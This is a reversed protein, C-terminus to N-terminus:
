VLGLLNHGIKSRVVLLNIDTFFLAHQKPLLVLVVGFALM